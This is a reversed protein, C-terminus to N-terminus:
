VPLPAPHDGRCPARLEVAPQRAPEASAAEQEQRRIVSRDPCHRQLERFNAASKFRAVDGVHCIIRAATVVGIGRIDTLSTSTAAVARRLRAKSTKIQAECHVLDAVFERAVGVRHAAMETDVVVRDLLENARTVHRLM